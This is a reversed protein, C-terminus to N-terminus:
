FVSKLVPNKLKKKYYNILKQKDAASYKESFEIDSIKACIIAEQNKQTLRFM